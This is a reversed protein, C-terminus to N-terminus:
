ELERKFRERKYEPFDALKEDLDKGGLPSNGQKMKLMLNYRVKAMYVNNESCKIPTGHESYNNGPCLNCFDCYEKRGCEEFSKLKLDRWWKLKESYILVEKVSETHLNGLELHFACCPILKGDPTINFTDLGASCGNQELNRKIAGYNDVEKGVYMPTELDCLVVELQEETLRLHRSACKDGELSDTINLEFQVPIGYDRGIQAVGRYTKLNPRMVCCKLTLPMMKKTLEDIVKMTKNWSGKVRTIYDHVEAENSYLSISILRPYYKLLRDVKGELILGNTYIDFAIDKQYLYDIIDWIFPNVFPDGGTLCVKYLGEDYFEDIIRKYEELSLNNGVDRSSIESDNRTAGINYCHICKESCNYTLEFMVGGVGKISDSYDMEATNRAIPLNDRNPLDDIIYNSKNDLLDRRYMKITKHSPLFSTILNLHKLEELFPRLNDESLCTNKSLSGISICGNRGLHLIEGIVSASEDEFFYAMGEILNYYIAVRNKDDYRGCTWEPRYLILEETM